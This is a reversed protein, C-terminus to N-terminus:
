FDICQNVTVFHASEDRQIFLFINYKDSFYVELNWACCGRKGPTEYLLPGQYM